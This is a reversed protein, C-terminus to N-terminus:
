FSPSGGNNEHVEDGVSVSNGGFGEKGFRTRFSVM